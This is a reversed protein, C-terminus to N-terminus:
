TPPLSTGRIARSMAIGAGPQSGGLSITEPGDGVVPTTTTTGNKFFRAGSDDVLYFGIEFPDGNTKEINSLNATLSSDAITTPDWTVNVSIDSTIVTKGQRMVTGGTYTLTTREGGVAPYSAASVSAYETQPLPSYAFHNTANSAAGTGWMVGFRTYDTTDLFINHSYTVGGFAAGSSAVERERDEPDKTLDDLDAHGDYNDDRYTTLGTDAKVGEFIGDELATALAKSSSLANLVDAIESLAGSDDPRSGSMPYTQDSLVFRTERAALSDDVVPAEGGDVAPTTYGTEDSGVPRLGLEIDYRPRGRSGQEIRVDNISFPATLTNLDVGDSDILDVNTGDTDTEFAVKFGTRLKLRIEDWIAQRQTNAEMDDGVRGNSEDALIWGELERKLVEIEAVVKALNAQGKRSHTSGAKGEITALPISIIRRGDPDDPDANLGNPRIDTRGRRLANKLVGAFNEIFTEVGEGRVDVIPAEVIDTRDAGFAGAIFNSGATEGLRNGRAGISWTGMAATGNEDGDGTGLLQGSLQNKEERVSIAGFGEYLIRAASTGKEDTASFGATSNLTAVPLYITKVDQLQHQWPQGEEDSLASVQATVRSTPLSVEMNFLGTYLRPEKHGSVATTSGTYTATGFRPLHSTRTTAPGVAYAFAGIAGSDESDTESDRYESDMVATGRESKAYAGFRTMQTAGLITRADFSIADYVEGVDKGEQKLLSDADAFIGDDEEIAERFGDLSALADSLLEFKEIVDEDARKKSTQTITELTVSSRGFIKEVIKQADGWRRQYTSRFDNRDANSLGENAAVLGSVLTQLREVDERAEEVFTKGQVNDSAGSGLLTGLSFEQEDIMLMTQAENAETDPDDASFTVSLSDRPSGTDELPGAYKIGGVNKKDFRAGELAGADTMWVHYYADAVTVDGAGSTDLMDESASVDYGAGDERSSATLGTGGIEMTVPEFAASWAGDEMTLVYENGNAANTTGGSAFPLGNLTYSGDEEKMLRATGSTGLAVTQSTANYMAMWMGDEDMALTYSNGNEAMVMYGTEVLADGDWYTGDEARVLTVNEGSTGLMVAAAYQQYAATWAGAGDSSLVYTNAGAAVMGGEILTVTEGTLPHVLTWTGDEGRMAPITGIAGIAVTGTVPVYMAMWGDEGMVLTYVNGNAATRMTEGATVTMDGVWYSGDESKTITVTDGSMGLMVDVMPEIYTASWGGDEGMMLTYTNGNGATAMTVGSEVTMDGLWYSGDESKKVVATDGSLGLMVNVVPEVYTAIWAIMGADDTTIMLTYVNGNTATAMTVGSQVAADGVWYTGDEARTLTVMEETIGLTVMIDVAQFAATWNGDALVLLYTSGNGAEVSGGSEFLEGNLTFGGTETTMLTINEGAEGLAVEVPQPQFPPPAPPPAPPQVVPAPESGGCAAMGLTLVLLAMLGFGWSVRNRIM